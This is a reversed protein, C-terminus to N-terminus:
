SAAYRTEPLQFFSKVRERQHQLACLASRLRAKLEKRNKPCQRGLRHDKLEHWVQEDPNLEPSYRPLFYIRLQQRHRRVFCRVAKARHFSVRDVLLILARERGRLLQKLFRIYERAKVSGDPLAYRLTADAMVMSLANCRGRQGTVPISPPQGPPGWTRGRHDRLDVGAEDEFGIEAGIRAALRRIRPWKEELFFRVEEPDRERPIYHPTQYSLGLRHLHQNVCAESVRVGFRRELLEALIACSWLATAYGFAQPTAESVVEELWGAMAESVVAVAGPAKRTELAAYGSEDFRKLWEYISSRSIGYVEAILEPSHGRERIARVALVRIYSMAEDPIDRADSQWFARM